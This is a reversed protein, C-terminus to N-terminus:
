MEPFKYNIKGKDALEEVYKILRLGIAYPNLGVRDISTVAANVRAYAVEHGNIREDKCFLEDHIGNLSLFKLFSEPWLRKFGIM